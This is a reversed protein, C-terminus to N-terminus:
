GPSMFLLKALRLLYLHSYSALIVYSLCCYDDWLVRPDVNFEQTNLNTRPIFLCLFSITLKKMAFGHDFDMM